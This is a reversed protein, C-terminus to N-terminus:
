VAQAKRLLEVLVAYSVKAELGNEIKMYKKDPYDKDEYKLTMFCSDGEYDVDIVLRERIRNEM